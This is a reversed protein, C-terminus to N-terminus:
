LDPGDEEALHLEGDRQRVPYRKLRAVTNTFLRVLGRVPFFVAGQPGRTMTGKTVDYQAHHWPCELCGGETVRGEGLSAGLHRCRDSVAFPTGGAIGVALRGHRTSATTVGSGGLESVGVLKTSEGM